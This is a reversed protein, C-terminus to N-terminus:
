QVLPGALQLLLVLYLNSFMGIPTISSVTVHALVFIVLSFVLYVKRTKFTKYVWNSQWKLLHLLSAQVCRVSCSYMIYTTEHELFFVSSFLFSSFFLGFQCLQWSNICIVTYSFSRDYSMVAIEPWWLSSTRLPFDCCGLKLSAEVGLFRWTRTFEATSWEYFVSSSCNNKLNWTLFVQTNKGAM